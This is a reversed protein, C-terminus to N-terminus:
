TLTVSLPETGTNAWGTAVQYDVSYVGAALGTFSYAGTGDTTSSPEGADKVGNTNSDIFVVVGSKGSDGASLGDGNADNFVTGAISAGRVQECKDWGTAKQDATLTVSL